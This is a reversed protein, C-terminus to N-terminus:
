DDENRLEDEPRTPRSEMGAERRTPIDSRCSEMAVEPWSVMGSRCAPCLGFIALHDLIPEFDLDHRIAQALPTLYSHDLQIVQGCGQCVLHHHPEETVIEFEACGHGLDTQSLIRLDRFMELTRYVTSLDVDRRHLTVRRHVEEVCAHGDLECLAQLIMVRQKTLRSGTQRVRNMLSQLNHM